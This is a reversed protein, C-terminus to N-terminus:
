RLHLMQLMPLQLLELPAAGSFSNNSADLEKKQKKKNKKHTNKLFCVDSDVTLRCFCVSVVCWLLCCGCVSDLLCLGVLGFAWKKVQLNSCARTIAAGPVTGEMLNDSISVYVLDPM